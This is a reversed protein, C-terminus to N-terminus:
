RVMRDRAACYALCTVEACPVAVTPCPCCVVIMPRRRDLAVTVVLGFCFLAFIEMGLVM